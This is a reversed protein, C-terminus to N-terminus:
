KFGNKKLHDNIANNVTGDNFGQERLEREITSKDAGESSRKVFYSVCQSAKSGERPETTGTAETKPKSSALSGYVLNLLEDKCRQREAIILDLEEGKVKKAHAQHEAVIASEFSEVFVAKKSRAEAMIKKVEEDNLFREEAKILAIAEFLKNQLVVNESDNAFAKAADAKAVKLAELKESTLVKKATPVITAVVQEVNTNNVESM